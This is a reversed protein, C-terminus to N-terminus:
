DSRATVESCSISPYGVGGIPKCNVQVKLGLNEQVLMHSVESKMGPQKETWKKKGEIQRAQWHSKVSGEHSHAQM